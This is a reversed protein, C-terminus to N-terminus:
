SYIHNSPTIGRTHNLPVAGFAGDIKLYKFDSFLYNQVTRYWVLLRFYAFQLQLLYSLLSDILICINRNLFYILKDLCFYCLLKELKQKQFIFFNTECHVTIYLVNQALLIQSNLQIKVFWM